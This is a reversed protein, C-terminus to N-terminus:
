GVCFIPDQIASVELYCRDFGTQEDSSHLWGIGGLGFIEMSNDVALPGARCVSVNRVINSHDCLALKGVGVHEVPFGVNKGRNQPTDAITGALRSATAPTDFVFGDCNATQFPDSGIM